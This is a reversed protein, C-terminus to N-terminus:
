SWYLRARQGCIASQSVDTSESASTRGRITVEGEPQNRAQFNRSQASEAIISSRVSTERKRAKRGRNEADRYIFKVAPTISPIYPMNAVYLKCTTFQRLIPRMENKDVMEINSVKIDSDNM